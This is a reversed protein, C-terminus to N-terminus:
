LRPLHWNSGRRPNYRRRSKVTLSLPSVTNRDGKSSNCSRCLVQLNDRKLALEPYLSRPVIHDVTIDKSSNIRVGCEACTTGDEKIVQQRLARWEPSSYFLERDSMRDARDQALAITLQHIRSTRHSRPKELWLEVAIWIVFPVLIGVVSLVTWSLWNLDPGFILATLASLIVLTLPLYSQLREGIVIKDEKPVAATAQRTILNKVNETVVLGDSINVMRNTPRVRRKPACKRCFRSSPVYKVFRREGCEACYYEKTGALRRRNFM